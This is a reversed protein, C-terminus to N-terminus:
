EYSCVELAGPTAALTRLRPWYPELPAQAQDYMARLEWPLPLGWLGTGKFQLCYFTM